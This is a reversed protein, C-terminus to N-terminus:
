SGGKIGGCSVGENCGWTHGGKIAARQVGLKGGQVLVQM